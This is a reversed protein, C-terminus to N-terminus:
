KNKCDDSHLTENEVDLTEGDIVTWPNARSYEQLPTREVAFPTMIGLGNGPVLLQNKAVIPADSASIAVGQALVM